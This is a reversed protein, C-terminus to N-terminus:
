HNSDCQSLFTHTALSYTAPIYISIDVSFSRCINPKQHFFFLLLSVDLWTAEQIRGGNVNAASRFQDGYSQSGVQLAELQKPVLNDSQSLLLTMEDDNLITILCSKRKSSLTAGESPSYLEVEFTEHKEFNQM